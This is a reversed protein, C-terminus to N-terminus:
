HHPTILRPHVPTVQKHKKLTGLGWSPYHTGPSAVQVRSSGVTGLGWSPYHAAYTVVVASARLINGIGMLPLSVPPASPNRWNMLTGLGWSPYHSRPHQPTRGHPGSNGIGMLPLSGPPPWTVPAPTAREWDGHPTILPEVRREDVLGRRNGIGMLPLSAYFNGAEVGGTPNGIGMLPLSALPRSADIRGTTHNGIGM